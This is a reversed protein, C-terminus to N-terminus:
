LGFGGGYPSITMTSPYGPSDCRPGARATARPEGGPLLVHLVVSVGRACWNSWWIDFGSSKGPAVTQYPWNGPATSFEFPVKGPLLEIPLTRGRLDTLRVKPRGVLTCARQSINRLEAGGAFSGMAGQFSAAARLQDARCLPAKPHADWGPWNAIRVVARRRTTWLLGPGAALGGHARLAFPRGRHGSRADIRFVTGAATSVWVWSGFTAIEPRLPAGLRIRRVIALREADVELLAEPTVVWVRGTAALASSPFPGLGVSGPLLQNTREDIRRLRGIADALWLRRGDGALALPAYPLRIRAIVRQTAPDVRWVLGSDPVAAVLNAANTVWIGGADAALLRMDFGLPGRIVTRWVDRMTKADIAQLVACAQRARNCGIDSLAWARGHAFALQPDPEVTARGDVANHRPDIRVLTPGRGAIEAVAWAKGAGLTLGHIEGHLRIETHPPYGHYWWTRGQEAHQTPASGCALLVAPLLLLGVARLRM